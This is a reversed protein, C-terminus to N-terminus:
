QMERTIGNATTISWVAVARSESSRYGRTIFPNARAGPHNIIMYNRRIVNGRRGFVRSGFRTIIQHAKTGEHVLHSYKVPKQLRAKPNTVIKLFSVTRRGDTVWNQFDSRPGIANVVAGGSYTKQKVGMSRKLTGSVIPVNAVVADKIVRSSKNGSERLIVKQMKSSLSHFKKLDQTDLHADMRISSMM